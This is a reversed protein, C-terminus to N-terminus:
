SSTVITLRGIGNADVSGIYLLNDRCTLATGTSNPILVSAYPRTGAPIAPSAINWIELSTESLVFALFSRIILGHVGGPSLATGFDVGGIRSLPDSLDLIPLEESTGVAYSRGAYLRTGTRALARVYGAGPFRYSSTEIIRSSSRVDLAVLAKGEASNDDTALYASKGDTAIDNIGRGVGYGGMYQPRQPDHVDLIQFEKGGATKGLGLYLLGDRYTLASGPALTGGAASSRPAQFTGTKEPIHDSIDFVHVQSSGIGGFANAAYITNPASALAAYGTRSTSANDFSALYEPKASPNSIDFFFLTPDTTSVTSSIAVALIAENVALSSPPYSTDSLTRPLLDGPVLSRTSLIRPAKWDGSLFPDCPYEKADAANLVVTHYALRQQKGQISTWQISSTMPKEPDNRVPDVSYSEAYGESTTTSTSELRDFADRAIIEAHALADNSRSIAVLELNANQLMIPTGFAVLSTAVLTSTLVTFAILLEILSFGRKM